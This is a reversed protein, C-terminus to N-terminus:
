GSSLEYSETTLNLVAALDYTRSVILLCLSAGQMQKEGEGWQAGLLWLHPLSPPPIHIILLSKYGTTPTDM